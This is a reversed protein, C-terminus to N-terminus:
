GNRKQKRRRKLKRKIQVLHAQPCAVFFPQVHLTRFDSRFVHSCYLALGCRLFWSTRQLDRSEKKLNQKQAKTARPELTFRRFITWFEVFIWGLGVWFRRFISRSGNRAGLGNRPRTRVGEPRSKSAWIGAWLWDQPARPSGLAARLRGFAEGPVGSVSWSGGSASDSRRRLVSRSRVRRRISKQNTKDQRAFVGM